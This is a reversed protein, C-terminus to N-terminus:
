KAERTLKGALRDRQQVQEIGKLVLAPDPSGNLRIWNDASRGGVLVMAPHDEFNASYAGFGKLVSQVNRRSGTLWAWGPDNSFQASYAAIRAPTDRAPDVTISVLVVEKGLRDGLKQAVRAMAASAVPCYSTCSTYFFDVVVVMEAIVGKRLDVEQGHQDLLVADALSVRTQGAHPSPTAHQQHNEHALTPQWALIGAVLAAWLGSRKKM